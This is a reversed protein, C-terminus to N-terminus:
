LSQLGPVRVPSSSPVMSDYPNESYVPVPVYLAVIFAVMSVPMLKAPSLMNELRLEGVEVHFPDIM